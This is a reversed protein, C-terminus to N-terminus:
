AQPPPQTPGLLVTVAPNSLNLRGGQSPRSGLARSSQVEHDLEPSILWSTVLCPPAPRHPFPTAWVWFPCVQGHLHSWAGETLRDEWLWRQVGGM